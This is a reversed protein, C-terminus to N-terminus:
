TTSREEDTLLPALAARARAIPEFNSPSVNSGFQLAAPIFVHILFIFAFAGAVDPHYKAHRFASAIDDDM